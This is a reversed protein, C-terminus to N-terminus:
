GSIKNRFKKTQILRRRIIACVFHVWMLEPMRESISKRPVKGFEEAKRATALKLSDYSALQCYMM